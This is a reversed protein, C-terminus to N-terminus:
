ALFVCLRFSPDRTHEKLRDFPHILLGLIAGLFPGVNGATLAIVNSILPYIGMAALYIGFYSVGPKVRPDNGILIAYGIIGFTTFIRFTNATYLLTFDFFSKCLSCHDTLTDIQESGWV